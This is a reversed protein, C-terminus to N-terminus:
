LGEVVEGAWIVDCFANYFDRAISIPKFPECCLYGTQEWRRIISLIEPDCYDYVKAKNNTLEKVIFKMAAYEGASLRSGIIFNSWAIVAGITPEPHVVNMSHEYMVDHNHTTIVGANLLRNNNSSKSTM